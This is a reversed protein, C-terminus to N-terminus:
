HSEIRDIRGLRGVRFRPERRRLRIFFCRRAVSEIRETWQIWVLWEIREHRGLKRESLQPRRSHRPTIRKGLALRKGVALWQRLAIRQRLKGIWEHRGFQELQRIIRILQQREQKPREGYIRGGIFAYQHHWQM